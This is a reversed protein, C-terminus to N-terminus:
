VTIRHMEIKAHVPREIAVAPERAAGMSHHGVLGVDDSKHSPRFWARLPEVL